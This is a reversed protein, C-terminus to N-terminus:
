PKLARAGSGLGRFGLAWGPRWIGSGLGYIVGFGLSWTGFDWFM